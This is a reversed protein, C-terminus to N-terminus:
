GHADSLHQSCAKGSVLGFCGEEFEGNNTAFGSDGTGRGTLTFPSKDVVLRAGFPNVWRRQELSFHCFIMTLTAVVLGGASGNLISFFFLRTPIVTSVAIYRILAWRSESPFGLLGDRIALPLLNLPLGLLWIGLLSYIATSPGGRELKRKRIVVAYFTFLALPCLVAYELEPVYSGLYLLHWLLVPLWFVVPALLLTIYCWKV